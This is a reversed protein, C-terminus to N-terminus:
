SERAGVLHALDRLLAVGGLVLPAGELASCAESVLESLRAEVRERVGLRVLAEIAQALDDPRAEPRGLVRDVAARDSAPVSRELERVIATRKGARLDGGAPKGTKAPDGFTGLLDDRVQFAEGLPEGYRELAALQEQTARGLVAGIELPGAVTYSGTKLRQMRSVDHSGLLDMAQGYVVDRQIRVFIGLAERGRESLAASELMLETALAAGLDGSLVALSAALHESSGPHDSERLTRGLQVHASPGGRREADGDMWDDHILLYSQLLELAACAAVVDAVEAHPDVARQAAVLLAPRLRKGGRMTLGALADLILAAEPAITVLEGRRAAFVKELKADVAQKVEAIWQM